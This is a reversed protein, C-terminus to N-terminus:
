TKFIQYNTANDTANKLCIKFTLVLLMFVFISDIEQINMLLWFASPIDLHTSDPKGYM